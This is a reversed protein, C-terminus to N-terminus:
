MSFLPCSHMHVASQISRLGPNRRSLLKVLNTETKPFANFIVPRGIYCTLRVMLLSLCSSTNTIILMQGLARFLRDSLIKFNNWTILSFRFVLRLQSVGLLTSRNKSPHQLLSVDNLSWDLSRCQSCLHKLSVFGGVILFGSHYIFLPM